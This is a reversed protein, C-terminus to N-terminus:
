VAPRLISVMRVSRAMQAVAHMHAMAQAASLPRGRLRAVQRRRARRADRNGLLAAAPVVLLGDAGTGVREVRVAHAEVQRVDHQRLELVLRM